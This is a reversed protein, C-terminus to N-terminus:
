QSVATATFTNGPGPIALNLAKTALGCNQLPPITYVGTFTSTTALPGSMTVSVPTSTTCSNGVLNILPSGLPNVSVIRIQFVGTATVTFTNFDVKGTVPKVQKMAFTATALPLGAIKVTTKAPPLAITGTLTDTVLDLSGNFTGRPVVVTQNLKKLHTSANIYYNFPLTPDAAGAPTAAALITCAILPIALAGVARRFRLHM